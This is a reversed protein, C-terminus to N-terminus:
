AEETSTEEQATVEQAKALIEEANAGEVGDLASAIYELPMQTVM